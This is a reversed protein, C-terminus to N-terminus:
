KLKSTMSTEADGIKKLINSMTEMAKAIRDMTMQQRMGELTMQMSMGDVQMQMQLRMGDMQMQLRPNLDHGKSAVSKVSSRDYVAKKKSM